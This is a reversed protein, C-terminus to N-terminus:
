GRDSSQNTGNEEPLDALADRLGARSTVGLKPFIQYLHYGVTRASLFLREGIQKNSLGAAALHAIQRQQATLSATKSADPRERQMGTARLENAARRAWPKADLQEFVDLAASIHARADSPAKTRRLREGYV